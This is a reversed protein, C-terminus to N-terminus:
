LLLIGLFCQVILRTSVKVSSYESFKSLKSSQEHTNTALTKPKDEDIDVMSEDGIGSIRQDTCEDKGFLDESLPTPRM